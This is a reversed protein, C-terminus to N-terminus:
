LTELPYGYFDVAAQNAYYIDGNNPNIILMISQHNDFLNAYDINDIAQVKLGIPLFSLLLLLIVLIKKMKFGGIHM